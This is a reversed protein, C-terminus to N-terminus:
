FITTQEGKPKGKPAKQKSFDVEDIDCSWYVHRRNAWWAIRRTWPNKTYQMVFANTGLEKLLRCRYKDEEPTSDYGVLVYFQVRHKLDFGVDELIKIGERVSKEAHITDFAFSYTEVVKLELLREAIKTDMRRIDLGNEILKLDHDLVFQSTEFFWDRDAVWNNDLLNITDHRDDYFEKPHMWRKLKGEKQPVVCWPCKRICGRTTFGMSIKIDGATGGDKCKCFRMTHGCLQCVMGDYLSYDPRVKMMDVPLWNNSVGSGGVHIPTNFYNRGASLADSRNKKFICSVYIEHPNEINFGVECGKEKFYTSVNMLALNPILSDIDILLVDM